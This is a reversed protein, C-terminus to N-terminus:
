ILMKNKNRFLMSLVNFRIDVYGCGRNYSNFFKDQTFKISNYGQNNWVFLIIPLNYRKITELEQLNHQLSGDGSIIIIRKKKESAFAVGVAHGLQFGMSGLGPSCIMKQGKKIKFSQQTIESASGSSDQIIIDNENLLGSLIEIFVYPNIFKKNEYYEPLCIPYQQKVKECYGFWSDYNIKNKIKEKENLLEEIFIKANCNFILTKKFELKKIEAYDIDM